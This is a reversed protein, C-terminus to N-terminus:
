LGVLEHHGRIVNFLGEYFTGPIRHEAGDLSRLFIVGHEDILMTHLDAVGLVFKGGSDEVATDIVGFEFRRYVMMERGLSRFGLIENVITLGWLNQVFWRVSKPLSDCRPSSIRRHSRWGSQRLLRHFHPDINDPLLEFRLTHPNLYSRQDSLMELVGCDLHYGIVEGAASFSAWISHKFNTAKLCSFAISTDKVGCGDLSATSTDGRWRADVFGLVDSKPYVAADHFCDRQPCFHEVVGFRAVPESSFVVSLYAVQSSQPNELEHAFTAVVRHSGNPAPLEVGSGQSEDGSGLDCALVGGSSVDLSGIERPGLAYGTRQEENRKVCWQPPVVHNNLPYFDFLYNLNIPAAVM